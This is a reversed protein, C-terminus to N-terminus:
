LQFTITNQSMEASSSSYEIVVISGGPTKALASESRTSEGASESLSVNLEIEKAANTFAEVPTSSAAKIELDKFITTRNM